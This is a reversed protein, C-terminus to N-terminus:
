IGVEYLRYTLLIAKTLEHGSYYSCNYIVEMKNRHVIESKEKTALMGICIVDFSLVPGFM